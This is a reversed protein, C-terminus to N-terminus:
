DFRFISSPPLPRAPLSVCWWLGVQRQAPRTQSLPASPLCARDPWLVPLLRVCLFTAGRSFTSASPSREPCPSSPSPHPPNTTTPPQHHRPSPTTPSPASSHHTELALHPQSTQKQLSSPCATTPPLCPRLPHRGPPPSRLGVVSPLIVLRCRGDAGESYGEAAGEAREDERSPGERVAAPVVPWDPTDGEPMDVDEQETPLPQQREPSSPPGRLNRSQRQQARRAQCAARSGPAPRGRGVGETPRDVVAAAPVGSAPLRVPLRSSTRQRVGELVSGTRSM